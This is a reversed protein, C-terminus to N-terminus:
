KKDLKGEKLLFPVIYKLNKRMLKAKDQGKIEDASEFKRIIIMM